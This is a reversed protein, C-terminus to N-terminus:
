VSILQSDSWDHYGTGLRLNSGPLTEAYSAPISVTPGYHYTFM